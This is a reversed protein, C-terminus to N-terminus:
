EKNFYNWTNTARDYRCRRKDQYEQKLIYMDVFVYQEYYTDRLKPDIYHVPIDLGAKHKKEDLYFGTYIIKPLNERVAKNLDPLPALGIKDGIVDLEGNLNWYYTIDKNFINYTLGFGNLVSDCRNTDKLVYKPTVYRYYQPSLLNEKYYTLFPFIAALSFGVFVWSMYNKKRIIAAAFAGVMMGNLLDLLYYYHRDLSFYFLRQITEALWFLCFIRATTKGFKLFYGFGLFALATLVYFDPKTKEVLGNYVDPIYLNFIYNALWYREVMDNKVLWGLFLGGMCLPIICAKMFDAGSIKKQYLEFLIVLGFIGLMFISKQMFFFATAAWFFSLVLARTRPTELYSFLFGVALLLSLVM